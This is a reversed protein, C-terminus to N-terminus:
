KHWRSEIAKKASAKRAEPSRNQNAKVAAFYRALRESIFGALDIMADTQDAPLDPMDFKAVPEFDKLRDKPVAILDWAGEPHCLIITYDGVDFPWQKMTMRCFHNTITKIQDKNM